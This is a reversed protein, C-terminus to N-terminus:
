PVDVHFDFDEVNGVNDYLKLEFHYEGTTFSNPITFDLSFAKSMGDAAVFTYTQATVRDGTPTEYILEWKGGELAMNDTAVGSVTLIDGRQLTIDRTAPSNVVLEPSQTDSPNLIQLTYVPTNNNENGEEDLVKIQFHYNGARVNAPVALTRSITQEKGTIDVVDQVTWINPPTTREGEHGHCDFDDHIDIKYQGLAENDGVTFNVVVNNGGTVAIVNTAVEGCVTGTGVNPTISVINFTPATTDEDKTCGALLFMGVVGALLLSKM